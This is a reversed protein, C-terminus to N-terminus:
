TDDSIEIIQIAELVQEPNFRNRNGVKLYPIKRRLMLNAVTRTTVGLVGAIEETNLLRPFAKPQESNTTIKAM